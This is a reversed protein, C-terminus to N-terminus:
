RIQVILSSIIVTTCNDMKSNNSIGTQSANSSKFKSWLEILSHMYIYQTNCEPTHLEREQEREKQIQTHTHTLAHTNRKM